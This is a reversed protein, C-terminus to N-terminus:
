KKVGVFPNEISPLETVKFLIPDDPNIILGTDSSKVNDTIILNFYRARNEIDGFPEFSIDKIEKEKIDLEQRSDRSIIKIINKGEPVWIKYEIKNEYFQTNGGWPAFLKQLGPAGMAVSVDSSVTLEMKDVIAGIKEKTLVETGPVVGFGGKIKLARPDPITLGTVAPRLVGIRIQRRSEESMQKLEANLQIPIWAMIYPIATHPPILISDSQADGEIRRMEILKSSNNYIHAFHAYKIRPNITSHWAQQGQIVDLYQDKDKDQGALIKGFTTTKDATQNIKLFHQRDVGVWELRNSAWASLGIGILANKDGTDYVVLAIGEWPQSLLPIIRATNRATTVRTVAKPTPNGFDCTARVISQKTANDIDTRAVRITYSQPAPDDHSQKYHVTVNLSSDFWHSKDSGITSPIPIPLFTLPEGPTITRGDPLVLDSYRCKNVIYVLGPDGFEMKVCFITLLFITFLGVAKIDYKKM